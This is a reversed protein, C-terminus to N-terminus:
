AHVSLPSPSLSDDPRLPPELDLEPELTLELTPEFSSKLLYMSKESGQRTFCWKKCKGTYSEPEREPGLSRFGGREADPGTEM